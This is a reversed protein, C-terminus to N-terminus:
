LAATTLHRTLQLSGGSILSALFSRLSLQHFPDQVSSYQGTVPSDPVAAAGAVVPAPFSSGDWHQVCLPLNKGKKWVKWIRFVPKLLRFVPKLVQSVKLKWCLLCSGTGLVRQFRLRSTNSINIDKVAFSVALLLATSQASVPTLPEGKRRPVSAGEPM